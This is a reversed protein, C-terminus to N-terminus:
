ARRWGPTPRSRGSRRQLEDGAAPDIKKHATRHIALKEHILRALERAKAEREDLDGSSSLARQLDDLSAALLRDADGAWAALEEATSNGLHRVGLGALV